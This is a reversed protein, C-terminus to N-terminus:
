EYEVESLDGGKERMYQEILELDMDLEGHGSEAIVSEVDEMWSVLM